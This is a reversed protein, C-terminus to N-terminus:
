YVLSPFQIGLFILKPNGTQSVASMLVIVDEAVVAVVRLANKDM